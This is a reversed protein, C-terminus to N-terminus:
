TPSKTFTETLANGAQRTCALIAGNLLLFDMKEKHQGLEFSDLTTGYLDTAVGGAERVLLSMAATEVASTAAIATAHLSGAAILGGGIGFAGMEQDSFHRSELVRTKFAAFSAEVGPWACIAVRWYKPEVVDTGIRVPEDFRQYWAGQAREAFWTQQTMPNHIVAMIPTGRGNEMQMITAIVTATAMGRAYAGTGDLPDVYLCFGTPDIPCESNGEEGIFAIKKTMAWAKLANSVAHDIATVPTDDAKTEVTHVSGFHSNMALGATVVALKLENLDPVYM